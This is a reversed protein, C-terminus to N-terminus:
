PGAIGDTQALAPFVREIGHGYANAKLVAWVLSAPATRKVFRLNNRIADLHIRASIPRPKPARLGPANLASDPPGLKLTTLLAITGISGCCKNGFKKRSKTSVVTKPHRWTAAPEDFRFDRGICM